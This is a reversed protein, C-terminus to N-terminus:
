WKSALRSRIAGGKSAWTLEGPGALLAGTPGNSQRAAGPFIIPSFLSTLKDIKGSTARREYLLEFAKLM